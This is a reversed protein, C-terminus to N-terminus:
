GREGPLARAETRPWRSAGVIAETSTRVALLRRIESLRRDITRRSVGLTRGVASRSMGNGLLWLLRRQEASLRVITSSQGFPQGVSTGALLVAQTRSRAGLKAMASRVHTDVTSPALGFERAIDRSSLGRGVCALVERERATLGPREGPDTGARRLMDVRRGYARGAIVADPIQTM